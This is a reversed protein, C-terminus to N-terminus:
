PYLEGTLLSGRISKFDWSAEDREKGDEMSFFSSFTSIQEFNRLIQAFIIWEGQVPGNFEKRLKWFTSINKPL